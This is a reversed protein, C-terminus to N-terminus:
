DDLQMEYTNYLLDFGLAPYTATALPNSALGTVRVRKLGMAHFLKFSKEALARSVGSGRADETVYLDAICGYPREDPVVYHGPEVERIGVLFGVPQHAIEALLIFGGHERIEEKLSKIHAEAGELTTDRDKRTEYEHINLALTFEVLFDHDEPRAERIVIKM